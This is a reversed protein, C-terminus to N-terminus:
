RQAPKVYKLTMTFNSDDTIYRVGLNRSGLQLTAEAVGSKELVDVADAFKKGLIVIDYSQGTSIYNRFKNLEKKWWYRNEKDLRPIYSYEIRSLLREPGDISFTRDRSVLERYSEGRLKIKLSMLVPGKKKFPGIKWVTFPAFGDCDEHPCVRQLRPPNDQTRKDGAWNVFQPEEVEYWTDWASLAKIQLISEVENRNKTIKFAEGYISYLVNHQVKKEREDPHDALVQDTVLEAEVNGPHLLEIFNEVDDDLTNELYLTALIRAEEQEQHPAITEGSRRGKWSGKKCIERAAICIV